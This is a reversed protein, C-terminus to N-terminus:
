NEMKLIAQALILHSLQKLGLNNLAVIVDSLTGIYLQKGNIKDMIYASLLLSISIDQNESSRNLARLIIYPPMTYRKNWLLDFGNADIYRVKDGNNINSDINEIINKLALKYSSSSLHNNVSNILKNELKKDKINIILSLASLINLRTNNHDKDETGLKLLDEIWDKLEYNSNDRILLPLIKRANKLSLDDDIDMKIIAPLLPILVSIDYKQAINFAESIKDKRKKPIWSSKTDKYVQAIKYWDNDKPKKDKYKKLIDDYLNSLYKSSNYGYMVSLTSIIAKTNESSSSQLALQAIHQEPINKYFEFDGEPVTIKDDAILIAREIFDLESFAKPNYIFNYDENKIIEKLISYKSGEITQAYQPTPSKSLSIMCYANMEKWFEIDKYDEFSTKVELCARAKQKNLLMSFIGSRILPENLVYNSAKNYLEFAEKNYGMRMLATIRLTLLDSGNEIEIDNKITSTDASTILLNKITNQLAYLPNRNINKLLYVLESRNAHRYIDAGLSQEDGTQLLGISELKTYDIDQQAYSKEFPSACYLVLTFIIINLIKNMLYGIMLYPKRLLKRLYKLM